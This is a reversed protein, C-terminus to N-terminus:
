EEENKLDELIKLEEGTLPVKEILDPRKRVTNRISMERRWRNVAQHNGSVLVEPVDMDKFCRPRTYRPSDLLGDQFSDEEASEKGDMAGPLLRVISETLAMAPIEGGTLVYDGLSIEIDVVLDRVREDVGKYRGCILVMHELEALEKVMSQDLRKGQPSLLVVKTGDRRLDTVAKYIPEVKMVMGPGGGFPYDDTTRHKDLAFQRLDVVDIDVIGKEEARQVLGASFPGSFVEPFITIIDIKM